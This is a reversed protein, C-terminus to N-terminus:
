SIEAHNMPLKGYAVYFDHTTRVSTPSQCRRPEQANGQQQCPMVAGGYVLESVTVSHVM